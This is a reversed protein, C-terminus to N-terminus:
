VCFHVGGVGDELEEQLVCAVVGDLLCVVDGAGDASHSYDGGQDEAPVCVPGGFAAPM